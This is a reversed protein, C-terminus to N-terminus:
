SNGRFYVQLPEFECAWPVAHRAAVRMNEDKTTAAPLRCPPNNRLNTQWKPQLWFGAVAEGGPNWILDPIVYPNSKLDIGYRTNSLNPIVSKAQRLSEDKM